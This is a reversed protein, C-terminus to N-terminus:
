QAKGHLYRVNLERLGKLVAWGIAYTAVIPVVVKVVTGAVAGEIAGDAVGDGGSLGDLAAGILGGMTTASM